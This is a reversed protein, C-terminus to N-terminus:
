RLCIKGRSSKRAMKVLENDSIYIKNQFLFKTLDIQHIKKNQLGLNRLDITNIKKLREDLEKKADSEIRIWQYRKVM